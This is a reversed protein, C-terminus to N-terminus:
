AGHHGGVARSRVGSGQTEELHVLAGYPSGSLLNSRGGVIESVIEEATAGDDDRELIVPRLGVHAIALGLLEWVEPRVPADHTDYLYGDAESHGAVHYQMVHRPEVRLIESRADFGHNVASVFVNNVDLLIGCGTRRCLEGLFELESM